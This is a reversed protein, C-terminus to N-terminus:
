LNSMFAHFDRQHDRFSSFYRARRVEDLNLKFTLRDEELRKGKVIIKGFPSSIMSGGWFYEEDQSGVSNVFIMWVNQMLSHARLLTEWDQEITLTSSLGRLPSSSPVFIVSAGMLSLAEVPESHWVDECIAVGFSIDKFKFIKVDKRPDGPQFYRREEFLGYTPPYFKYVYERKGNMLVVATNRLIGPHYERITGFIACKGQEALKEEATEADKIIDYTIDRLIYGTLSLEPFIVCEASSTSLIDIHKELNSTIDGQKVRIQALEVEM